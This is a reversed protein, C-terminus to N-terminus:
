GGGGGWQILQPRGTVFHKPLLEYSLEPRARGGNKGVHYGESLGVVEVYVSGM